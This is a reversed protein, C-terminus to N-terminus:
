NKGIKGGSLANPKKDLLQSALEIAKDQEGFRPTTAEADPVVGTGELRVGKASIYDMFPFQVQWGSNIPTITSVLVAGASKTGVVPANRFEKLAMATIEAASGSAGDVLVALNGKFVGVSNKMPRMGSPKAWDVVKKLDTSDSMTEKEYSAVMGRNVYFGFPEDASLFYGLLDMMNLVIGGGNGRLDLVLKKAKQAQTMLKEMNDRKYAELFTNVKLVATDESVWTLTDPIDTSYKKREIKFTLMKEGRKVKLEVSTGEPGQFTQGRQLKKGDAELVVDGPELGSRSAPTNPFIYVVRLGEELPEIRIGIGVTSRDKRAEAAKPTILVLHSAHFFRYIEGNIIESLQDDTEAKDIDAKKSKIFDDWKSFDIGPVFAYNKVVNTLGDIVQQRTEPTLQPKTPVQAFIPAAITLLLLPTLLRRFTFM